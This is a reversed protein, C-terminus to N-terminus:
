GVIETKIENKNFTNDDKERIGGCIKKEKRKKKKRFIVSIFYRIFTFYYAVLAVHVM